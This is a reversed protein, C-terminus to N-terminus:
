VDETKLDSSFHSCIPSLDITQSCVLSLCCLHRCHGFGFQKGGPGKRGPWRSFGAPKPPWCEAPEKNDGGIAIKAIIIEFSTLQGHDTTLRQARTSICRISVGLLMSSIITMAIIGPAFRRM